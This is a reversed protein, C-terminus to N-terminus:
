KEMFLEFEKFFDDCNDLYIEVKIFKSFDLSFIGMIFKVDVVYRGLIFDIDFLYKSVINVFNKVVDIINLKVIVIKM